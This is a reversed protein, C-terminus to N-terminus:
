GAGGIMAAFQAAAERQMGPMVHAYIDWTISVSAHGLRESVVKVNVGAKLLLTAHTHRLDHLRITPLVDGGSDEDGKGLQKACNGVSQVFRKTFRDPHLWQGEETAFVLADDRILPLALVGRAQRHAKLVTITGPDIDVVRSAKGKTLGEVLTLGQGKVRVPTISRRISITGAALDIDRWRLALLEGRRMGTFASVHWAPFVDTRHHQSWQLFASLHEASWPHIEPSKAERAAPPSAMDAPNKIIKGNQVASKLAAKLITHLYRVTRPSLGTGAQHNAKGHEELERYMKTIRPGTLQQLRVSGLHPRIHHDINRQYSALTSPALRRGAIWEDLWEGLTTRTPATYRGNRIDANIDGLADAAAKKTLYGRKLKMTGETDRYKILWRAGAKTQYQSVSGEGRARRKTRTM